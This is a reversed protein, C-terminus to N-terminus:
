YSITFRKGTYKPDELENILALAYDSYSVTSPGGDPGGLIVEEQIRYNGLREGEPNFLVAPAFFTWKFATKTKLIKYLDRMPLAFPKIADPFAPTDILFTGPMADMTGAGGVLILRPVGANEIATLMSKSDALKDEQGPNNSAIVADHGKILGALKDTDLIDGKKKTLNPHDIEPATNHVIATVYHGRDLAEKLIHKGVKGAPGILAIKM